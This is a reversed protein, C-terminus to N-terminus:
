SLALFYMHLGLVTLHIEESPPGSSRQEMYLRPATVDSPLSCGRASNEIRYKRFPGILTGYNVHPHDARFVPNTDGPRTRVSLCLPCVTSDIIEGDM